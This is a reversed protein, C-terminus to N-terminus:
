EGRYVAKPSQLTSVPSNDVYKSEQQKKVSDKFEDAEDASYVGLEYLGALTLVLRARCRKEAMEAYYTNTSTLESASAFTIYSKGEAHGIGKMTVNTPTSISDVVDIDCIIGATREIKQVGARTIITYHKHKFVDDKTLDYKKFLDSLLELNTPM